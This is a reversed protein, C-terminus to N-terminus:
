CYEADLFLCFYIARFFLDTAMLVANRCTVEQWCIFDSPMDTEHLLTMTACHSLLLAHSKCDNSQPTSEWWPCRENTVVKPLNNVGILRQWWTTYSPVPWLVTVNKLQSPSRMGPPFYHYGVAPPHSLTVQPSVAQVSPDTGPGVSLLSYPLVKREVQWPCYLWSFSSCLIGRLIRVHETGYPRSTFHGCFVFCTPPMESYGNFLM